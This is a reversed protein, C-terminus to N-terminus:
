CGLGHVIQASSAAELNLLMYLSYLVGNQLCGYRARERDQVAVLVDKAKRGHGISFGDEAKHLFARNDANFFHREQVFHIHFGMLLSVHIADMLATEGAFADGNGDDIVANIGAV